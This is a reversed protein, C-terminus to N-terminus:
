RSCPQISLTIMNPLVTGVKRFADLCCSKIRKNQSFPTKESRGFEAPQGNLTFICDNQTQFRQLHLLYLQNHQFIGDIAPVKVVQKVCRRCHKRSKPQSYPMPFLLEDLRCPLVNLCRRCVPPVYRGDSHSPIGEDRSRCGNFVM